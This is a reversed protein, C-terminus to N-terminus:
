FPPDTSVGKAGKPLPFDRMRRCPTTRPGSLGGITERALPSLTPWCAPERATGLRTTGLDLPWNEAAPKKAAESAPHALSPTSLLARLAISASVPRASLAFGRISGSQSSSVESGASGQSDASRLNTAASPAPPAEALRSGVTTRQREAFGPAVLTCQSEKSLLSDSREQWLHAGM